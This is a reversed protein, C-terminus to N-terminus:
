PTSAPKWTTTGTSTALRSTPTTPGGSAASGAIRRAARSGTRSASWAVPEATPPWPRSSASSRRTDNRGRLTCIPRRETARRLRRVSAVASWTASDTPASSARSASPVETPLV